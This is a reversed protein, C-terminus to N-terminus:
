GHELIKGQRTDKKRSGQAEEQRRGCLCPGSPAFNDNSPQRAAYFPASCWDRGRGAAVCTFRCVGGRGTRTWQVLALFLLLPPLLSESLFLSLSFCLSLSLTQAPPLATAMLCICCWINHEAAPFCFFLSFSECGQFTTNNAAQSFPEAGYLTHYLLHHPLDYHPLCPSNTTPTPTHQRQLEAWHNTCFPQQAACWPTTPFHWQTLTNRCTVVNHEAPLLFFYFGVNM